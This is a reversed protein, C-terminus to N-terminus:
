SAEEPPDPIPMWHTIQDPSCHEYERDWTEWVGDILVYATYQVHGFSVIFVEVGSQPLRDEVSIWESM